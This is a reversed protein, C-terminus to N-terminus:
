IYILDTVKARKKKQRTNSIKEDDGGPHSTKHETREGEEKPFPSVRSSDDKDEENGKQILQLTM